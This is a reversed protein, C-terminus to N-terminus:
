PRLQLPANPPISMWNEPDAQDQALWADLCESGRLLWPQLDALSAREVESLEDWMTERNQMLRYVLHALQNM